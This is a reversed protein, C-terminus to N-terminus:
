GRWRCRALGRLGAIRVPRLQSLAGGLLLPALEVERSEFTVEGDQKPIGVLHFPPRSRRTIAGRGARRGYQVVLAGADRYGVIEVRLRRRGRAWSSASSWRARSISRPDPRRRTRTWLADVRRRAVTVQRPRSRSERRQGGDCPPGRRCLVSCRRCRSRMVRGPATVIFQVQRNDDTGSRAAIAGRGEARVAGAADRSRCGRATATAAARGRCSRRIARRRRSSCVKGEDATVTTTIDVKHPSGRPTTTSRPSCRLDRRQRSSQPQGGAAGAAGAQLEDDPRVTPVRSSSASTLAVGSMSSRARPSTRCTSTTSSRDRGVQTSLDNAAVRLQYRGPPLEFRSLTRM